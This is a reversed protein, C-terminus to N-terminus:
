GIRHELIKHASRRTGRSMQAAELGLRLWTYLPVDKRSISGRTWIPVALVVGDGRGGVQIQLGRQADLVARPVAGVTGHNLYTIAPDLLWQGRMEHGFGM